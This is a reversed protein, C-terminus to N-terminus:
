VRFGAGTYVPPVRFGLGWNMTCLHHSGGRWAWGGHNHVAGIHSKQGVQDAVCGERGPLQAWSGACARAAGRWGALLSCDDDM